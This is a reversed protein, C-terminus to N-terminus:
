YDVRREPWVQNWSHGVIPWDDHHPFSVHFDIGFNWLGHKQNGVQRRRWSDSHQILKRSGLTVRRSFRGAWGGTTDM